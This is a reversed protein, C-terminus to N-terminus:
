QRGASQSPQGPRTGGLTRMRRGSLVVMVLATLICAVGALLCVEGFITFALGLALLVLLIGAGM